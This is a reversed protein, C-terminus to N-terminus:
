LDLYLNQCPNLTSSFQAHIEHLYSLGNLIISPTGTPSIQPGHKLSAFLDQYFQVLPKIWESELPCCVRTFIGPFCVSTQPPVFVVRLGHWWQERKLIFHEAWVHISWCELSRSYFRTRGVELHGGWCYIKSEPDAMQNRGLSPWYRGEQKGQLCASSKWLWFISIVSVIGMGKQM